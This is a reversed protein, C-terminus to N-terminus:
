GWPQLCRNGREIGFRFKKEWTLEMSKQNTEYFKEGERAVDRKGESCAQRFAFTSESLSM